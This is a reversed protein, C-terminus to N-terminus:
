ILVKRLLEGLLDTTHDSIINLYKLAIKNNKEEAIKLVLDLDTQSIYQQTSSSIGLAQQFFKIAEDYKSEGLYMYEEINRFSPELRKQLFAVGNFRLSIVELDNRLREKESEILFKTDIVNKVMNFVKEQQVEKNLPESYKSASRAILFGITMFIAAIFQGYIAFGPHLLNWFSEETAIFMLLQYGALYFLVSGVLVIPAIIALYSLHVGRKILFLAGVISSINGIITFITSALSIFFLDESGTWFVDLGVGSEFVRNYGFMWMDWSFIDAVKVTGAPTFLAFLGISSGIFLFIWSFFSLKAKLPKPIKSIQPFCDKEINRHPTQFEPYKQPNYVVLEGCKPCNTEGENILQGCEPCFKHSKM